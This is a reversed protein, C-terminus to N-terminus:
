AADPMDGSPMAAIQPVVTAIATYEVRSMEPACRLGATVAWRAMLASKGTLSMAGYMAAWTRYPTCPHPLFRPPCM